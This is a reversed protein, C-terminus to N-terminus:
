TTQESLSTGGPAEAHRRERVDRGNTPFTAEFAGGPSEDWAHGALFRARAWTKHIRGAGEGTWTSQEPLPASVLSETDTNERVQFRPGLFRCSKGM